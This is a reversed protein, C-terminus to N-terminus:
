FLIRYCAHDFQPGGFNKAAGTVFKLSTSGQKQVYNQLFVSYNPRNKPKFNLFVLLIKKTLNKAAGWYYKEQLNPGRTFFDPWGQEIIVSVDEQWIKRKRKIFDRLNHYPESVTKQRFSHLLYLEKFHKSFQVNTRTEKIM